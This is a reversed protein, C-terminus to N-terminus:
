STAQPIPSLAFNHIVSDNVGLTIVFPEPVAFGTAHCTVTFEGQELEDIIYYGDVDSNIAHAQEIINITAGVVPLGTIANTIMGSIDSESTLNNISSRRRRSWRVRNYAFNLGPFGTSNYNVFRDLDNILLKTGDKILQDLRNHRSRRDGLTNSVAEAAQQYAETLVQLQTIDEHTLGVEAAQEMKQTITNIFYFSFQLMENASVSRYRRLHNKLTNMLVDDGIRSAFMIGIHLANGLGAALGDRAKVRNYYVSTLPITLDTILTSMETVLDTFSQRAALAQAKGIFAEDHTELVRQIAKFKQTAFILKKM